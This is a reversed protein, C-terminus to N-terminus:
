AIQGVNLKLNKQSFSKFGNAKLSVAYSGSPLGAVTAQGNNDTVAIRKMGTEENTIEVSAGNVSSSQADAVSLKLTAETVQAIATMSFVSALCFIRMRLFLKPTM